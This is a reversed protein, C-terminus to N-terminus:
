CHEYIWPRRREQVVAFLTSCLTVFVQFYQQLRNVTCQEHRRYRVFDQCLLFLSLDVVFNSRVQASCLVCTSAGPKQVERSWIKGIRSAADCREVCYCGCNMTSWKMCSVGDDDDGVVFANLSSVVAVTVMCRSIVDINRYYNCVFM